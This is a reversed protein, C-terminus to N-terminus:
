NEKTVPIINCTFPQPIVFYINQHQLQAVKHLPVMVPPGLSLAHQLAFNVVAELADASRQVQLTAPLM